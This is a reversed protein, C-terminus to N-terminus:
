PAIRSARAELLAAEHERGQARKIRAHLRLDTAIEPHDPGYAVLDADTARQIAQEAEDLRGQRLCVSALGYAGKAVDSPAASALSLTYHQKADAWHERARAISGLNYHIDSRLGSEASGSLALATRLTRDAQDLEGTVEYALGLGNLSRAHRPDGEGYVQESIAVAERARDLAETPSQDLLAWSLFRLKELRETPPLDSDSAAIAFVRRALAAVPGNGVLRGSCGLLLVDRTSAGSDVRLSPCRWPLVERYVLEGRGGYVNLLTRRLGTYSITVALGQGGGDGADVSALALDGWEAPAGLELDEVILGDLAHVHLRDGSVHAIRPPGSGRPDMAFPTISDGACTIRGVEEGAADRIVVACGDVHLVEARGDGNVDVIEVSRANHAPRKWLERGQADLRAVGGAGNMGIAFDISDDADLHGFALRDTGFPTRWLPKGDEAFVGAPHWNGGRNVLEARGDANLDLLVVDWPITTEGVDQLTVARERPRVSDILGDPRVLWLRGPTDGPPTVIDTIAVDDGIEIITRTERGQRDYREGTVRLAEPMSDTDSAPAGCGIALSCLAAFWNSGHRGM